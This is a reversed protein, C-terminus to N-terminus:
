AFMFRGPPNEATDLFVSTFECGTFRLKALTGDLAILLAGDRLRTVAEGVRLLMNPAFAPLGAAAAGRDTADRGVTLRM